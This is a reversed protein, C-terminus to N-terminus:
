AANGVVIIGAGNIYLANVEVLVADVGNLEAVHVCEVIRGARQEHGKVAHAYIEALVVLYVGIVVRHGQPIREVTGPRGYCSLRQRYDCYANVAVAANVRSGNGEVAFLGVQTDFVVPVGFLPVHEACPRTNIRIGTCSGPFCHQKLVAVNDRRGIIHERIFEVVVDVAVVDNDATIDFDFVLAQGSGVVAIGHSDVVNVSAVVVGVAHCEGALVVAREAEVGIFKASRNKTQHIYLFPARKSAGNLKKVACSLRKRLLAYKM